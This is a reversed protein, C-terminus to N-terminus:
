KWCSRGGARLPRHPRRCLDERVGQAEGVEDGAALRRQREVGPVPPPHQLVVHDAALADDFRVARPVSPKEIREARAQAVLPQLGVLAEPRAGRAEDRDGVVVHSGLPSALAIVAATVANRGSFAGKTASNTASADEGQPKFSFSASAPIPIASVTAYWSTM